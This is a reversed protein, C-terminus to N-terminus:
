KKQNPNLQKSNNDINGKYTKNNKNPPQNNSNTIDARQDSPTKATEKKM